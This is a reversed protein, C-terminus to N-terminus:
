NRALTFMYDCDVAAGAANITFIQISNTGPTATYASGVTSNTNNVAIGYSATGLNHTITTNGVGARSVTWGSPGYAVAATGANTIRGGYVKADLQSKNVADTSAVGNPITVPVNIVAQTAGIYFLNLVTSFDGGAATNKQLYFTDDSAPWLMRWAGAPLTLSTNRGQIAPVTSSMAIPSATTLTLVGSKSENGTTHMPSVIRFASGSYTATILSLAPIDGAILPVGGEKVIDQATLGNVALTAAGTNASIAVFVFRQGAMYGTIPPNPAITLANATGGASSGWSFLEGAGATGIVHYGNLTSNVRFSAGNGPNLTWNGAVGNITNGATARGVTIVGVGTNLVNIQYSAGGTSADLLSITNTGTVELLKGNDTATTTYNATKLLAEQAFATVLAADIAEIATKLPNGIKTLHKDWTIKNSDVISGDNAPPTANYASVAITTYKQGM